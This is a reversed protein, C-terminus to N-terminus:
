VMVNPFKTRVVSIVISEHGNAYGFDGTHPLIKISKQCAHCFKASFKAACPFFKSIGIPM